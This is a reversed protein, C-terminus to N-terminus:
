RLIQIKINSLTEIYLVTLDYHSFMLLAISYLTGAAPKCSIGPENKPNQAYSFQSFVSSKTMEGQFKVLHAEPECKNVDPMSMPINSHKETEAGLLVLTSSNNLKQMLLYVFLNIICHVIRNQFKRQGLPLAYHYM